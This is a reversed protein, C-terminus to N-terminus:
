GSRKAARRQEPEAWNQRQQRKDTVSQPAALHRRYQEQEDDSKKNQVDLVTRRRGRKRQCGAKGARREVSKDQSKLMRVQVFAHM